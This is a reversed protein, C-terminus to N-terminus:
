WLVPMINNGYQVTAAPFVRQQSQGDKIQATLNLPTIGMNYLSDGFSVNSGPFPEEPSYFEYRLKSGAVEQMEKLIDNSSTSLQRFGSPYNGKLYVNVQVNGPLNRLLDKTPQTLTFRKDKTLDVRKHIYTTLWNILVLFVIVVPVGWKGKLIRKM